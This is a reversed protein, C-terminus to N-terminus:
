LKLNFRFQGENAKKKFRHPADYKINKIKHLHSDVSKSNARKIESLSDSLVAKMSNM